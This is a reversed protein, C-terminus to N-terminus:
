PKAYGLADANGGSGGQGPTYGSSGYGPRFGDSIASLMPADEEESEYAPPLDQPYGGGFGVRRVAGGEGDRSSEGGAVLSGVMDVAARFQALDQEMTNSADSQARSARQSDGPPPPPVVQQEM